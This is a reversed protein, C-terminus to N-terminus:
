NLALEERTKRIREKTIIIQSKEDFPIIIEDSHSKELLKECANVFKNMFEITVKPKIKEESNFKM